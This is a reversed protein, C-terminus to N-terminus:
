KEDIEHDDESDNEEDEERQRRNSVHPPQQIGKKGRLFKRFAKKGRKEDKEGEPYVENEIVHDMLIDARKKVLECIEPSSVHCITDVVHDFYVWFARLGEKDLKLHLDLINEKKNLWQAPSEPHKQDPLYISRIAVDWQPILHDPCGWRQPNVYYEDVLHLAQAYLIDAMESERQAARHAEAVKAMKARNRIKAANVAKAVKAANAIKLVM